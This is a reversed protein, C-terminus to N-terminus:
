LSCEEMKGMENNLEGKVKAVNILSRGSGDM